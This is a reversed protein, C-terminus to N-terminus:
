RQRPRFRTDPPYLDIEQQTLVWASGLQFGVGRREHLTALYARARRESVGWTQAADAVSRLDDLTAQRVQGVLATLIAAAADRAEETPALHPAIDRLAVSILDASM